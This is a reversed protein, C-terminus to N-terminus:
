HFVKTQPEGWMQLFDRLWCIGWDDDQTLEIAAENGKLYQPFCYVWYVMEINTIGFVASSSYTFDNHRILLPEGCSTKNLVQAPGTINIAQRDSVRWGWRQTLPLAMMDQQNVRQIESLGLLGSYAESECGIADLLMHEATGFALLPIGRKLLKSMLSFLLSKCRQDLVLPWLGGIVVCSATQIIKESGFPGSDVDIAWFSSQHLGLRSILNDTYNKVYNAVREPPKDINTFVIRKSSDLTM